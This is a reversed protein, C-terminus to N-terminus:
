LHQGCGSVWQHSTDKHEGGLVRGTFTRKSPTWDTCKHTFSVSLLQTVCYAIWLELPCHDKLQFASITQWTMERLSEHMGRLAPKFITQPEVPRSFTSIAIVHNVEDGLDRWRRVLWRTSPHRPHPLTPNLSAELEQDQSLDYSGVEVVLM